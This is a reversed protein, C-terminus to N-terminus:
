DSLIKQAFAEVISDLRIKGELTLFFCNEEIKGLSETEVQAIISEFEKKFSLDFLTQFKELNLGELTRLRLMIMELMKQEISLTEVQDVALQGEKINEMYIDIDSYNWSRNEGDFSHAAPGFGSYPIMEWYRSNHKSRNCTSDDTCNQGNNKKTRAFNSIEYHEYGSEILITSTEEFLRFMMDQNLPEIQNKEVKEDLPTGPEITLMYCSLHSPMIELATKLDQQWMKEDEFPLGYILDLGINEFGAKQAHEIAEFSQKVTHIRNLFLLKKTSFSQVGLSLRNIGIAKLQVLYDEDITGPNVEFTIETDQSVDFNRQIGQLITEIQHIKLISPTGGGFYITDVHSKDHHCKGMRGARMDMEKVLCQIYESALSLRTDSYFDCYACKKVCFPVHIYISKKESM